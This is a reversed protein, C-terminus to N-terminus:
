WYMRSHSGANRPPRFAATKLETLMQEVFTFSSKLSLLSAKSIESTRLDVSVPNGNRYVMGLNDIALYISSLLEKPHDDYNGDVAICYIGRGFYTIIPSKGALADSIAEAIDTVQDSFERGSCHDFISRINEVTVVFIRTRHFKLRSMHKLYNEFAHVRLVGNVDDIPLADALNSSQIGELANTYGNLSLATEDLKESQFSSREALGIRHKLDMFDFPKTIYDTAGAAFAMDINGKDSMATLMIVPTYRYESNARISKCLEIGTVEPMQIDLLFINIPKKAGRIIELAQKASSATLVNYSGFSELATSVLSLIDPEDDVLLIDLGTKRRFYRLSRLCNPTRLMTRIQSEIRARQACMALM